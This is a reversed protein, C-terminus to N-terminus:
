IAVCNIYFSFFSHHVWTQMTCRLRSARPANCSWCAAAWAFWARCLRPKNFTSLQPFILVRLLVVIESKSKTNPRQNTHNSKTPCEVFVFSLYISLLEVWSNVFTARTFQCRVTNCLRAYIRIVYYLLLVDFSRLQVLVFNYKSRIM